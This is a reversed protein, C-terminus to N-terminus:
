YIDALDEWYGDEIAAEIAEQPDMGCDHYDFFPIDPLDDSTFGIAGALEIDMLRKWAKLSLHHSM